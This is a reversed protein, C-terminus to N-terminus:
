DPDYGAARFYNACEAPTFRPILAGVADWLADVKREARARLMAKLKSFANEIPNFDPSYPPLFMLKAGAREIADRVGSTKHAPLNDMVVVDGVQLTPVLVQEVYALFVNGNMAGDYVFPATMGTLRLAGTFTTTKWHGHPVGARCREGRIARGRLRAMKTSLGTEDVFILKEPDLNLQGDFWVRRRKLVDPRDQELAHASKKKFTWGRGRLWAGLASRSIRVQREVSLREVMEDLTVDKRDEILEVVFAEHADLVSPRRWGQPRSTPEGDKARAIWRIATSIGVGFRAAAQRASMGAASAKLVRLRLDDSLAQAM